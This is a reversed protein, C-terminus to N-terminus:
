DNTKEEYGSINGTNWTVLKGCEFVICFCAPNEMNGAEDTEMHHYTISSVGRKGVEYTEKMMPNHIRLFKLEKM